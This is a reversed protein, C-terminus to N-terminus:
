LVPFLTSHFLCPSSLLCPAEWATPGPCIMRGVWTLLDAPPLAPSPLRRPLPTKASLRSPCLPSGPGSCTACPLHHTRMSEQALLCSGLYWFMKFYLTSQFSDRSLEMECQERDWPWSSWALGRVPTGDAKNVGVELSKSVSNGRRAHGKRGRCKALYAARCGQQVARRATSPGGADTGLTNRKM